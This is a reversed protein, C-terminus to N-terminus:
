DDEYQGLLVNLTHHQAITRDALWFRGIQAASVQPESCPDCPYEADALVRWRARHHDFM